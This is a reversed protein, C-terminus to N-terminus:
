QLLLLVIFQQSSTKVRLNCFPAHHKCFYKLPSKSFIIRLQFTVEIHM